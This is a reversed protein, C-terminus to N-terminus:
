IGRPGEFLLRSNYPRDGRTRGQQTRAQSMHFFDADVVVGGEAALAVHGDAVAQPVKGLGQLREQGPGVHAEDFGGPDGLFEDELDVGRLHQVMTAWSPKQEM